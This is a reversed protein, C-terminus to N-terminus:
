FYKEFLKMGMSVKLQIPIIMYKDSGFIHFKGTVNAVFVACPSLWCKGTIATVGPKVSFAHGHVRFHIFSKM